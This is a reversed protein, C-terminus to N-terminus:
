SHFFIRWIRIRSRRDYDDNGDLAQSESQSISQNRLFPPSRPTKTPSRRRPPKSSSPTRAWWTGSSTPEVSWRRAARPRRRSPSSNSTLWRAPRPRRSRSNVTYVRRSGIGSWSRRSTPRSYRDPSCTVRCRYFCRYLPASRACIVLLYTFLSAAKYSFLDM